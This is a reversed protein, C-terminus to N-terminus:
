AAPTFSDPVHISWDEPTIAYILARRDGAASRRADTLTGHDERENAGLGRARFVTFRVARAIQQATYLDAPHPGKRRAM